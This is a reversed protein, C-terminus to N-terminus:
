PVLHTHDLRPCPGGPCGSSAASKAPSTRIESQPPARTDQAMVHQNLSPGQQAPVESELEECQRESHWRGGFRRPIPTARGHMAFMSASLAEFSGRRAFIQALSAYFGSTRSSRSDAL